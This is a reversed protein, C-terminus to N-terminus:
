FTSFFTIYLKRIKYVKTNRPFLANGCKWMTTVSTREYHLVICFNAFKVPSYKGCKVINQLWSSLQTFNLISKGAISTSKGFQFTQRVPFHLHNCKFPNQNKSVCQIFM